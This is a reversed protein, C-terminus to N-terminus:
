SVLSCCDNDAGNRLTGDHLYKADLRFRPSSEQKNDQNRFTTTPTHLNSDKSREGEGLRQPERVCFTLEAFFTQAFTRIVGPGGSQSQPVQPRVNKCIMPLALLKRVPSNPSDSDEWCDQSVSLFFASSLWGYLTQKCAFSGTGGDVTRSM